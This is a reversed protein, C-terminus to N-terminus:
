GASSKKLDTMEAYTESFAAITKDLDRKTHAASRYIKVHFSIVSRWVRLMLIWRAIEGAFEHGIAIPVPIAKKRWEDRNISVCM